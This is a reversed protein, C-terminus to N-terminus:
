RLREGAEVREPIRSDPGALPCAWRPDFACSPQFAFNADVVLTGSAPDGGLDASKATDLLYRGAGYTEAGNTADLFPLFLGGAYGRMWFLPLTAARDPLALTVIGVRDFAPSEAGSNPLEIPAVALGGFGAFAPAAPIAPTEVALTWRLRDDYPWHRARFGAREAAPVPSQPHTRYLTERERRWAEWATPPDDAAIARVDAYLEAVRRRWDALWAREAPGPDEDDTM